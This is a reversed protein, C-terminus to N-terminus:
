VWQRDLVYCYTWVLRAREVDYTRDVDPSLKLALMDIDLGYACHIAMGILMWAQRNEIDHV